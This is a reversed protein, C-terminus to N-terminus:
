SRQPTRSAETNEDTANQRALQVYLYGNRATEKVTTPEEADVVTFWTDAVAGEYELVLRQIFEGALRGYPPNLWVRGTWPQHLSDDKATYIRKAKVTKNARKCSAPDLDIAGLVQRAAEIYKAPTYWENENSALIREATTKGVVEQYARWFPPRRKDRYRSVARVFISVTQRNTECAEAIQRVTWKRSALEVYCDAETWRSPSAKTEAKEAEKQATIAMAVVEADTGVAIKM